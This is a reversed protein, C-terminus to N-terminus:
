LLERRTKKVRRFVLCLRVAYIPSTLIYGGIKYVNIHGNRWAAAVVQFFDKDDQIVGLVFHSPMNLVKWQYLGSFLGMMTQNAGDNTREYEVVCHVVILNFTRESGRVTM